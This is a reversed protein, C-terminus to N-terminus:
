DKRSCICACVVCLFYNLNKPFILRINDSERNENRSFFEVNSQNEFYSIFLQIDTKEEKRTYLIATPLFLTLMKLEKKALRLLTEINLQFFM